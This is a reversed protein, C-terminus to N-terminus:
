GNRIEELHEWRDYQTGIEDGRLLCCLLDRLLAKTCGNDIEDYGPCNSWDEDELEHCGQWWSPLLVTGWTTRYKKDYSHPTMHILFGHDAGRPLAAITIQYKTLDGPEVELSVAGRQNIADVALLYFASWNSPGIWGSSPHVDPDVSSSYRLPNTTTHENM